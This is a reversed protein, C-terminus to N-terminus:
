ASAESRQKLAANMAEFGARTRSLLKGTFWTLVGSFRESQTFRSRGSELPEIQLLHAGDFLGPVLLHGIWRIRQNPVVELVKPKFNMPKGGPPQFTISLRDGVVLRGTAKTMFPNWSSFSELDSIVQWVRDPPADIEVSAEVTKMGGDYLLRPRPLGPPLGSTVRDGDFGLTSSQDFLLLPPTPWANV